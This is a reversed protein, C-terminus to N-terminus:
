DVSVDCDTVVSTVSVERVVGASIESVVEPCDVSGDCDLMAVSTM